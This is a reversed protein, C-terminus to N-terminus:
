AFNKKLETRVEYQVDDIPPPKTNFHKKEKVGAAEPIEGDGKTPSDAAQSAM